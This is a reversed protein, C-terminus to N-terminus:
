RSASLSRCGAAGGGGNAGRYAADAAAGRRYPDHHAVSRPDARQQPDASLLCRNDGPDTSADGAGDAAQWRWALRAHYGPPRAAASRGACRRCPTGRRVASIRWRASILRGSATTKSVPCRRMSASSTMRISGCVGRSVGARGSQRHDVLGSEGGRRRCFAASVPYGGSRTPSRAMRRAWGAGSLPHPRFTRYRDPRRCGLRDGASLRGARSVAHSDPAVGGPQYGHDLGSQGRRPWHRCVAGRRDARPRRWGNRGWFRALRQLDDPVFDMHAALM